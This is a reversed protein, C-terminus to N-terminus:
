NAEVSDPIELAWIDDSFCDREKEPCSEFEETDIADVDLSDSRKIAQENLSEIEVAMEMRGQAKAKENVVLSHRAVEAVIAAYLDDHQRHQSHSAKFRLWENSYHVYVYNLDFPDFRVEAAVRKEPVGRLCGHWYTVRNVQITKNRRLLVTERKPNPLVDRLFNQNFSVKRKERLGFREISKDKLEAPSLGASKKSKHNWDDIFSLLAHYFEVAEWIALNQPHHSASLQRINKALKNNGTLNDFFVSNATGFLREVTGGARPKGKRSVIMCSYRAMLTEFYISEFEKGGDVVVAEPFVGHQKVMLRIASM